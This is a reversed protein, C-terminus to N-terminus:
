KLHPMAAKALYVRLHEHPVDSGSGETIDDISDQRGPLRRQEGPHRADFQKV